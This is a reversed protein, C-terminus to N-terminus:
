CLRRDILGTAKLLNLVADSTKLQGSDGDKDKGFSMSISGAGYGSFPVDLFAGYQFRFDAHQCVAKKVRLQQFETLNDFGAGIIRSFTLIDIDDSARDLAQELQEDPITGSGYRIYDQETAYSM